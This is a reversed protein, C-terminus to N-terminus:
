RASGGTGATRGVVVRRGKAVNGSPCWTNSKTWWCFPGHAMTTVRWQKDARGASRTVVPCTVANIQAERLEITLCRLGERRRERHRRMRAAATSHVQKGAAPSLM